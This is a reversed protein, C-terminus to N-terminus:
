TIIITQMAVTLHKFKISYINIGPKILLMADLIIFTTVILMIAVFPVNIRSSAHTIIKGTLM